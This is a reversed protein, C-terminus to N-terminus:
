APMPLTIKFDSGKVPESSVTLRGGHEQVIRQAM